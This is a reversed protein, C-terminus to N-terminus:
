ILFAISLTAPINLGGIYGMSRRASQVFQLYGPSLIIVKSWIQPFSFGYVPCWTESGAKASYIWLTHTHDLNLFTTCHRLHHPEYKVTVHAYTDM